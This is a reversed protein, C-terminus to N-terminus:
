GSSRGWCKITRGAAFFPTRWTSFCTAISWRRRVVRFVSACGYELLAALSAMGSSGSTSAKRINATNLGSAIEEGTHTWSWRISYLGLRGGRRVLGQRALENLDLKLGHKLCARQRPRPMDPWWPILESRNVTKESEPLLVL